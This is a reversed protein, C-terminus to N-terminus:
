VEPTPMTLDFTCGEAELADGVVLDLFRALNAPSKTLVEFNTM